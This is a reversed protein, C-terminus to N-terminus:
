VLKWSGLAKALTHLDEVLTTRDSIDLGTVAMDMDSSELALGTIVSGFVKVVIRECNLETRAISEIRNKVFEREASFSKFKHDIAQTHRMIHHDFVKYFKDELMKYVPDGELQKKTEDDLQKDQEVDPLNEWDVLSAKLGAAAVIQEERPFAHFDQSSNTAIKLSSDASSQKRM